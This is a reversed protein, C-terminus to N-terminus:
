APPGTVLDPLPSGCVFPARVRPVPAPLRAPNAARRTLSVGLKCGAIMFIVTNLFYAVMEYFEHLFHLVGPSVASKNYNMYLGMVVVALVASSGMVLEALWFNLYSMGIVISAEVFRDNYM